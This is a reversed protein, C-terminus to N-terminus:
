GASLDNEGAAAEITRLRELLDPPQAHRVTDDILGVGLLDQIHARDIFRYAQLKMTVLAPLNIVRFGSPSMEFQSPDPAPHRYEPRIREGAFVVHVGTKPNPNERDLFMHVGLVEAPDLAIARVVETIRAFDDRRLLVDVDKTSRVAAEDVTAVWAAVANGGIVAYDIGAVNLADSTRKLLREVGEVAM